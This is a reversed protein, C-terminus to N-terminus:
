MFCTFLHHNVSPQIIHVALEPYFFRLCDFDSGFYRANFVLCEAATGTQSVNCYRFAYRADAAIHEILAAEKHAYDDITPSRSFRALQEGVGIQGVDVDNSSADLGSALDGASEPQNRLRPRKFRGRKKYTKFM